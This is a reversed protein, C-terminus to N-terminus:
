RVARGDEESWMGFGARSRKCRDTDVQCCRKKKPADDRRILDDMRYSRHRGECYLGDRRDIAPEVERLGFPFIESAM